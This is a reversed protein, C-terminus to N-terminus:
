MSGTANRVASAVRLLESSMMLGAQRASQLNIEFRVRNAATVFQIMGGRETFKPMDSVTLVGAGALLPVLDAM